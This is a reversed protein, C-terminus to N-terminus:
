KCIVNIQAKKVKQYGLSLQMGIKKRLSSKPNSELRCGKQLYFELKLPVYGDFLYSKNKVGKIYQSVKANSAILYSEQTSNVDSMKLRHASGKAFTFYRHNQFDRMGLLTRSASMDISKLPNEIRLTKLNQMGDFLWSEKENAMSLTYFDMVKPIYESTFIPMVDQKISWDFVYRLANVSATKSGSYLHYYIDIPKLRRPSNTRKFTQVVRKFGWFPGLWDNTYVNENQAGTYIQYYEGRALGLPSVLSLWPQTNNITTYGGNINLLKHKYLYALADERPACDGSWFITKAARKPHLRQEIYELAGDLEAHYSFTYGKPKLRYKAPLKGNKVKGWFFPHTFTHSAPEVNELAYMQQAIDLLKPSLKPYLGNPAIEAGIVSVSHPIKYVKLIKELIINGSFLEPNFEVYNMMGDGDIHTFLLRKGNETTVDPVILKKLRLARAFFEFPNIVWVNEGDIETIFAGALAYGGWETIAAPTSQLDDEDEYIILPKANEPTIYIGEDNKSPEVEFGMMADQYIIRKKNTSSEDGDSLNLGLPKLLLSSASFGFSNAFVVKINKKQLSVVWNILKEPKKYEKELWIVVGVYHSMHDIDPLGQNIDYLKEIYGLYEMPMAGLYHAGLITRDHVSEDVLTFIERKIANKSSTGYKTLEYTSLYPIMGEKLIKARLKLIEDEEQNSSIYQLKIVDVGYASMQEIFDPSVSADDDVLIAALLEYTNLSIKYKENLIFKSKPHKSELIKLSKEVQHANLSGKDLYFNLFGKATYADITKVLSKNAVVRAYIKDKYLSYGHTLPDTKDADLIIYDHIGVMSYSINKGYYVIASKEDLSAFLSSVVFLILFVLKKSFCLLKM